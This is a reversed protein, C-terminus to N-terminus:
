FDLRMIIEELDTRAATSSKELRMLGTSETVTLILARPSLIVPEGTLVLGLIIGTGTEM